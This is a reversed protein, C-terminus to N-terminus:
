KFLAVFFPRNPEHAHPLRAGGGAAAAAFAPHWARELAYVCRELLEDPFPPPHVAPHTVPPPSRMRLPPLLYLGGRGGGCSRPKRDPHM